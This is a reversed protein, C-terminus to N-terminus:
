DRFGLMMMIGSCASLTLWFRKMDRSYSESEREEVFPIHVLFADLIQLLFLYQLYTVRKERDGYLYCLSTSTLIAFGFGFIILKSLITPNSITKADNPDYGWPSQLPLYQIFPASYSPYYNQLDSQLNVLKHDFEKAYVDNAVICALGQFVFYLSLMFVGGSYLMKKDVLSM